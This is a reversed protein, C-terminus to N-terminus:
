IPGFPFRSQPEAMAEDLAESAESVSEYADEIADDLMDIGEATAAALESVAIDVFNELEEIDHQAQAEIELKLEDVKAQAAEQIAAQHAENMAVLDAMMNDLIGKAYDSAEQVNAMALQAEAIQQEKKLQEWSAGTDNLWNNVIVPDFGWSIAGEVLAEGAAEVGTEIREGLSPTYYVTNGYYDTYEYQEKFLSVPTANLADLNFTEELTAAEEQM